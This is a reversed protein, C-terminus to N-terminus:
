LVEYEESSIFPNLLSSHKNKSPSEPRINYKHTFSINIDCNWAYIGAKTVVVTSAKAVKPPM